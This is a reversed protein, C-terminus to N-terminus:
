HDCDDAHAHNHVRCAKYNIVHATIIGTVAPLLLWLEYEIFFIKLILFLFGISFIVMPIISHHHKRYGHYLSWTGICFALTIMAAEFAPNEILEVGFIPLSTIFLPLLACHIACALSTAIGLADLNLKSKM